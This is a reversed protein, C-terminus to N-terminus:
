PAGRSRPTGQNSVGGPTAELVALQVKREEQASQTGFCGARQPSMRVPRERVKRRRKVLASPVRHVTPGDELSRGATSTANMGSTRSVMEGFSSRAMGGELRRELALVKVLGERLSRSMSCGTQLSASAHRGVQLFVSASRRPYQQSFGGGAHRFCVPKL